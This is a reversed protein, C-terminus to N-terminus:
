CLNIKCLPRLISHSIECVNSTHFKGCCFIGTTFDGGGLVPFESTREVGQEVGEMHPPRVAGTKGTVWSGRAFNGPSLGQRPIRHLEYCEDRSRRLVGRHSMGDLQQKKVPGHVTVREERQMNHRTAAAPARAPTTEANMSGLPQHAPAISSTAHHATQADIAGLLQRTSTTSTTAPTMQSNKSDVRRQGCATWLRGRQTETNLGLHGAERRTIWGDVM